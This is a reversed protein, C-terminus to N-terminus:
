CSVGIAWLLMEAGQSVRSLGVVVLWGSDVRNPSLEPHDRMQRSYTRIARLAYAIAPVLVYALFHM